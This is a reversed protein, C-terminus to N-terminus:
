GRDGAWSERLHKQRKSNQRQLTFEKETSHCKQNTYETNQIRYNYNHLQKKYHTNRYSYTITFMDNYNKATKIKHQNDSM